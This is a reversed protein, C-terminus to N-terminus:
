LMKSGNISKDIGLKRGFTIAQSELKGMTEAHEKEDLKINEFVDFLSNIVPRRDNQNVVVRGEESLSSCHMRDFLYMDDSQYYQKAIEPAALSKLSAENDKLFNDYTSFAHEEIEKTLDYACAPAVLYLGVVIWYYFFALHQAVFRDSFRDNGGLEEMILLHHMENWSEAFHLKLIDRKRNLGLTEYLHLCSTYSFYPVRAVTELAYFYAYNRNGYFVSLIDKVSEVLNKNVEQIVKPIRKDNSLDSPSNVAAHSRWKLGAPRKLTPSSRFNALLSYSSSVQIFGALCILRIFFQKM